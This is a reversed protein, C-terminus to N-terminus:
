WFSQFFVWTKELPGCAVSRSRQYLESSCSHTSMLMCLQFVPWTCDGALVVVVFQASAIGLPDRKSSSNWVFQSSSCLAFLYARNEVSVSFLLADKLKLSPISDAMSHSKLIWNYNSFRTHTPICKQLGECFVHGVFCVVHIIEFYSVWFYSSAVAPCFFFHKKLSLNSNSRQWREEGVTKAERLENGEPDDCPERLELTWTCVVVMDLLLFPFSGRRPRKGLLFIEGYM